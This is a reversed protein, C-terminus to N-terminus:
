FEEVDFGHQSTQTDRDFSESDIGGHVPSERTSHANGIHTDPNYQPGNNADEIDALEPKSNTDKLM